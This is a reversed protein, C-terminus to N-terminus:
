TTQQQTKHAGDLHILLAATFFMNWLFILYLTDSLIWGILEFVAEVVSKENNEGLGMYSFIWAISDIGWGVMLILNMNRINTHYVRYTYGASILYILSCVVNISVRIADPSKNVFENCADIRM